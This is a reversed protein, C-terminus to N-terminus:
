CVLKDSSLSNLENVVSCDTFVANLQTETIKLTDMKIGEEM